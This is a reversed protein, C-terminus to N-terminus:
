KSYGQINKVKLFDHSLHFKEKKFRRAIVIFKTLVFANFDNKNNVYDLPKIPLDIERFRLANKTNKEMEM